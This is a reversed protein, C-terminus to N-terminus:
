QDSAAVGDLNRQFAEESLPAVEISPQFLFAAIQFSSFCKLAASGFPVGVVEVWGPENATGPEPVGIYAGAFLYNGDATFQCGRL